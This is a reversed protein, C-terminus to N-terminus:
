RGAERDLLSGLAAIQLYHPLAFFAEVLEAKSGTIPLVFAGDGVQPTVMVEEVLDHDHAAGSRSYGGNGDWVPARIGPADDALFPFRRHDWEVGDNQVIPGVIIGGRTRYTKGLEIKM